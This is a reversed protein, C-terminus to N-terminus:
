NSRWHRPLGDRPDGQASFYEEALLLSDSREADPEMRRRLIDVAKIYNLRHQAARDYNNRWQFALELAKQRFADLYDDSFLFADSDGSLDAPFRLGRFMVSQDNAPIPYFEVRPVSNSDADAPTWYSPPDRFVVADAMLLAMEDPAIPLITAKPYKSPIMSEISRMRTPLANRRRFITYTVATETVSAATELTFTSTSPFPTTGALRYISGGATVIERDTWTTDFTAGSSTGATSGKTVTITGTSYTGELNIHSSYRLWPWRGEMSLTRYALNIFQKLYVLTATSSDGTIKQLFAYEIAFTTTSM